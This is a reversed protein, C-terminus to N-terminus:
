PAPALVAAEAQPTAAGGRFPVRSKLRLIPRELCYWSLTAIAASFVGASLVWVFLRHSSHPGGVGWVTLQELVAGQYLFIGYSIVGVFVLVRNSLLRRVLGRQQNGVVAPVVIAVAILANLLHREMYQARTYGQITTLGIRTSVVWFAALAVLWALAPWRDLVGLPRPVAGGQAHWAHLVALGMGLAFVDFYVPLAVIAPTFGLPTVMGRMVVLKWVESVVVLLLLGGLEVRLRARPTRAPIRRLALAYCPLFAYFAMEVCLSWAQGLGHGRISAATSYTQLFGYFTPIGTATFVGTHARWITVVTLAVWYAPVIRLVRRWAYAGVALSPNGALRAAVFPRYLLVGSIVFFIWVGVDLRTIYPQLPHGPGLEGAPAASHFVLILVVAIARLSDFLPLQVRGGSARQSSTVPEGL